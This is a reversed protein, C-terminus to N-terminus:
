SAEHEWGEVGCTGVAEVASVQRRPRARVRLDETLACAAQFTRSTQPGLTEGDQCPPVFHGHGAEPFLSSEFNYAFLFLCVCLHCCPGRVVGMIDGPSARKRWAACRVGCGICSTFGLAGCLKDHFTKRAEQELLGGM